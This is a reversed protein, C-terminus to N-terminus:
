PSFQGGREMFVTNVIPFPDRTIPLAWLDAGRGPDVDHGRFRGDRLWDQPSLLPGPSALLLTDVGAGTAATEWIQM